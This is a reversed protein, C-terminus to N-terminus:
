ILPLAEMTKSYFSHANGNVVNSFFSTDANTCNRSDNVVARL